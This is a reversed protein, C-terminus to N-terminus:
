LVTSILYKRVIKAAHNFSGSGYKHSVSGSEPPGGSSTVVYLLKNIYQLAVELIVLLGRLIEVVLAPLVPELRAIDPLVVPVAVEPEDVPLLVEDLELEAFIDGKTLIM